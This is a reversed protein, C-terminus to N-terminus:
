RRTAASSVSRSKSLKAASNTSRKPGSGCSTSFRSSTMDTLCSQRRAWTAFNSTPGYPTTALKWWSAKGLGAPRTWNRVWCIPVALSRGSLLSTTWRPQSSLDTRALPALRRSCVRTSIASAPQLEALLDALLDAMNRLIMNDSCHSRCTHFSYRSKLSIIKFSNTRKPLQLILERPKSQVCM